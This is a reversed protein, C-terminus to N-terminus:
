AGEGVTVEGWLAGDRGSSGAPRIRWSGAGNHPAPETPMRVRWVHDHPDAQLQNSGPHERSKASSSSASGISVGPAGGQLHDHSSDSGVQERGAGAPYGRSLIQVDAWNLSSGVLRVATRGMLERRPCYPLWSAGAHVPAREPHCSERSRPRRWGGTVTEGHQLWRSKGRRVPTRNGRPRVSWSGFSRVTTVGVGNRAFARGQGGVASGVVLLPRPSAPITMAKMMDAAARAALPMGTVSTRARRAPAPTVATVVTRRFDPLSRPRLPCAM